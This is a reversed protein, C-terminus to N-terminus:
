PVVAGIHPTSPRYAGTHWQRKSYCNACLVECEAAAQVIRDQSWGKRVMMTGTEQTGEARPYFELCAPHNEGCDGCGRESKLGGVFLELDRKREAVREKAQEPHGAYWRRRAARQRTLVDDNASRPSTGAPGQEM